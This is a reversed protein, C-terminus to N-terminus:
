HERLAATGVHLTAIAFFSTTTKLASGRHSCPKSAQRHLITAKKIEKYRTTSVGHLVSGTSLWRNKFFLELHAITFM